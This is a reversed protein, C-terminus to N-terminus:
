GVKRYERPSLGFEDRFMRSFHAPSKFGWDFAIETISKRGSAPDQLEQSCRELRSRWIYVSITDGGEGFVKHLHRKSCNLASAVSDVSLNTDGLNQDIFLRIREKLIEKHSLRSSVGAQELAALRILQTITESLDKRTEAGLYSLEDLTDVLTNRVLRSVGRESTLRRGMMGKIGVRNSDLTFRPLRFVLFEADSMSAIAYPKAADYIVWDGPSIHVMAANQELYAEGKLLFAVKHFELGDRAIWERSRIAKHRSCAIRCMTAPGVDKYDLSAWFDGDQGDVVIDMGGLANLVEGIWMGPDRAGAPWNKDVVDM